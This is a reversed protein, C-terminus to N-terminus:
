SSMPDVQIIEGDWFGEDCRCHGKQWTLYWIWPNQPNPPPCRLATTRGGVSLSHPPQLVDASPVERATWHNLSGTRIGQSCIWDETLSALDWMGLPWFVLVYFLLFIIIYEIYVKFITWMLFIKFFVEPSARQHAWEGLVMSLWTHFGLLLACLMWSAVSTPVRSAGLGAPHM